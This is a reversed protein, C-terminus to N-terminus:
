SNKLRRSIKSNERQSNPMCGEQATSMERLVSFQPTYFLFGKFIDDLLNLSAQSRMGTM